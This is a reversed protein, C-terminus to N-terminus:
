TEPCARISSVMVFRTGLVNEMLDSVLKGGLNYSSRGRSSNAGHHMGQCIVALKILFSFNGYTLNASPRREGTTRMRLTPVTGQFHYKKVLFDSYNIQHAWADCFFSVSIEQRTWGLNM